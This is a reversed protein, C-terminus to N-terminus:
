PSYNRIWLWDTHCRVFVIPSIFRVGSGAAGWFFIGSANRMCVVGKTFRIFSDYLNLFTKNYVIIHVRELKASIGLDAITLNGIYLAGRWRGDSGITRCRGIILVDVNEFYIEGDCVILNCNSINNETTNTSQNVNQDACIPTICIGIFLIIVAFIFGKKSLSNGSM